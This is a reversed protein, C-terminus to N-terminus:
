DANVSRWSAGDWYNLYQTDTNLILIYSTPTVILADREAESYGPISWTLADNPQIPKGVNRVQNGKMNSFETVAM